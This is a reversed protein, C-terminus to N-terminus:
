NQYHLTGMSAIIAHQLSNVTTAIQVSVHIAVSTQLKTQHLLRICNVNCNSCYNYYKTSM